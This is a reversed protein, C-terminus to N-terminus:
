DILPTSKEVNGVEFVSVIVRDFQNVYGSAEADYLHMTNTLRQYVFGEGGYGEISSTVVLFESSRGDVPDVTNAVSMTIRGIIVMKSYFRHCVSPPSAGDLHIEGGEREQGIAVRM